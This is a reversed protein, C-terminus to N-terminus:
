QVQKISTAWRCPGGCWGYGYHFGDKKRYKIKQELMSYSFLKPPRLEVFTVGYNKLIPRVKKIINYIADFEMGTDYFVVTDLPRGEELLRLLMALSDKGFSVSAIYKVGLRLGGM